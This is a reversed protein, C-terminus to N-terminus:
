GEKRLRWGVWVLPAAMVVFALRQVPRPLDFLALSVLVAALVVCAFALIERDTQSM